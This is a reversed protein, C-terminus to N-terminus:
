RAGSDVYTPPKLGTDISWSILQPMAMTLAATLVVFWAFVVQKKYPM